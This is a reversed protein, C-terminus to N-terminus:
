NTGGKLFFSVTQFIGDKFSFRPAFSLEREIKSADLARRADEGARGKEFSVLNELASYDVKLIEAVNRLVERILELQSKECGAGIHYVEGTKGNELVKLVGYNHDDVYIWDRVISGDGFVLIDERKLAKSIVIPILKDESQYPGYINVTRTSIADMGFTRFYASAFLDASAKSAAYPSTPELPDSEKFSSGRSSGYVEYSSLYIFRVPDTENARRVEELLMVTREVNVEAFAFPDGIDKGSPNKAAFHLVYRFREENFLKRIAATELLDLKEIRLRDRFAPAINKLVTTAAKGGMKDLVTIRWDPREKLILRVFNGGVFGGGGTVLVSVLAKVEKEM